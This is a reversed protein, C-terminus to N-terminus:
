KNLLIYNVQAVAVQKGNEDFIDVQVPAMTKGVKIIKAECVAGTLCPALFRINMDTTAMPKDPGTTTLVAFCAMTDALSMLLGGHLSEFIGDYGKRRPLYGKCYGETLTRVEFGMQDMIPIQQIRDRLRQEDAEPLSETLTSPM